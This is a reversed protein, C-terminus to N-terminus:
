AGYFLHSKDLFTEFQARKSVYIEIPNEQKGVQLNM